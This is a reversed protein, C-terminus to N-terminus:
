GGGGLWPQVAQGAQQTTATANPVIVQVEPPGYLIKIAAVLGIVVIGTIIIFPLWQKLWDAMGFRALAANTESIIIRRLESPHHRWVLYNVLDRARVVAGDIYAKLKDVGGADRVLQELRRLEDLERDIQHLVDERSAGDFHERVEGDSMGALQERLEELQRIREEVRGSEYLELATKLEDLDRFGMERFRSIAALKDGALTFPYGMYVIAAQLGKGKHVPYTAEGDAAFEYKERYPKDVPRIVFGDSRAPLLRLKKDQGIAVLLMGTSRARIVDRVALPLSIYYALMATFGALGALGLAGAAVYVGLQPLLLAGGGAAAAFVLIFVLLGAFAPDM